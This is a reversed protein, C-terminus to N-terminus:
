SHLGFHHYQKVEAFLVDCAYGFAMHEGVRQGAEHEILDLM